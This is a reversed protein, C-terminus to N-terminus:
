IREHSLMRIAIQSSSSYLATGYPKGRQDTITVLSGPPASEAELVDSRYVWVHGSKLRTAGRPSIKVTPLDSKAPSPPMPVHYHRRTTFRSNCPLYPCPRVLKSRM